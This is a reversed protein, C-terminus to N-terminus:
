AMNTHQHKFSIHFSTDTSTHATLPQRHGAVMSLYMQPGLLARKIHRWQARDWECLGRCGLRISPTNAKSMQVAGHRLAMQSAWFNPDSIGNGSLTTIIKDISANNNGNRWEIGVTQGKENKSENIKTPSAVSWPALSKM